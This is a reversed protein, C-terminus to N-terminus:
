QVVWYNFLLNAGSTPPDIVTISFGNTTTQVYYRLSAAQDNSATLLVRPPKAFAKDFKVSILNGTSANDGINLTLQGSNDNGGITASALTASPNDSPATTIGAAAETDVTPPNGDTLVHGGLTIDNRFVTKEVFTVLRYFFANGNFTADGGVVLGDNLNLVTTATYINTTSSTSGNAGTNTTSAQNSALKQQLSALADTFVTLGEIENAKIKDAYLTGHIFVNNNFVADESTNGLFNFFSGAVAPDASDPSIPPTTLQTSTTSTDTTASTDATPSTPFDPADDQWARMYDVTGTIGTASNSGVMMFPSVPNSAAGFATSTTTITGCSVEQIGDSVDNDVFFQVEVATAATTAKRSEIRFYGSQTTSITGSCTVTNDTTGDVVHGIWATGTCTPTTLSTCNSFFYGIDALAMNTTAVSKKNIGFSIRNNSSATQTFKVKATYQPLNQTNLIGNLTTANVNSMYILCSDNASATGTATTVFTGNTNSGNQAYGCSGAGGAASSISSTAFEGSGAACGIPATGGSTVAGLYQDGVRTGTTTATTTPSADSCTPKQANFEDGWYSQKSVFADAIALGGFQNTTASLDRLEFLNYTTSGSLNKITFSNATAGASSKAFAINAINNLAATSSHTDTFNAGTFNLGLQAGGTTLSGMAISLGTSTITGATQTINPTTIDLARFDTTGSAGNQTIANTSAITLGKITNTGSTNTYTASPVSNIVVGNGDARLIDVTSPLITSNFALDENRSSLQNTVRFVQDVNLNSQTLDLGFPNYSATMFDKIITDGSELWVGSAHAIAIVTAVAGYGKGVSVANVNNNGLATGVDDTATTTILDNIADAYRGFQYLGGTSTGVYIVGEEPYPWVTTITNSSSGFFQNSNDATVTTARLTQSGHSNLTRYGIDYVNRIRAASAVEATVYVEDVNGIVSSLATTASTAGISFRTPTRGTNNTLQGTGALIGNVYCSIAGGTTITEAVHYWTNNVAPINTNITTLAPTGTTDTGWCTINANTGDGVTGFGWDPKNAVADDATVWTRLTANTTVVATPQVWGHVTLGATTPQIFTPSSATTEFSASTTASYNGAQGRVGSTAYTPSTGGNSLSASVTKVVSASNLGSGFDTDLPYYARTDGTLDATIYDKTYYKVLGNTPDGRKANIVTLNDATGMYITDSKGDALSTGSSVYLSSPVTSADYTTPGATFTPTAADAVATGYNSTSSQGYIEDPANNNGSSAMANYKVKLYFNTPSGAAGNTWYLSGTSTLFVQKSQFTAATATFFAVSQDTEDILAVNGATLQTTTDAAAGMAVAIYTKGNVMNAKVDNVTTTGTTTLKMGTRSQNLYTSSGNRNAISGTANTGTSFDRADTKDYRTIKDRVFDIVYLGTGSSGNTGVFVQGNLAWVSSPDNNSDAGLATTGQTFDMWLSNDKADFIYVHSATAYVAAIRPFTSQGCRDDTNIVCAAGTHDKTEKYWSSNQARDDNTWRGGDVDGATNYVFSALTSGPGSFNNAHGGINLDSNTLTLYDHNASSIDIISGSTLVGSNANVQPNALTVKVGSGSTLATDSFVFASGSGTGTTVGSTITVASTSSASGINITKNVANTGISITGSAATQLTLTGFAQLTTDGATAGTFAGLTVNTTGAAAQNGINITQTNSTNTGNIGIQVTEAIASTGLNLNAGSTDVAIYNSGAANQVLFATASDNYNKVTVNGNINLDGERYTSAAAATELQVGDIFFTHSTGTDKFYLYSTNITANTTFTCSFRTWTTTLAAASCDIEGNTINDQRGPTINYSGASTRAYFSFTYQTSALFSYSFKAGENANTSTVVKMSNSGFDFQTNDVSITALTGKVAWGDPIQSAAATGTEFDSNAILNVTNINLVNVGSGNQIQLFNTSNQTAKVLQSGNITLSGNIGVNNNFNAQGAVQLSGVITTNGATLTGGTSGQSFDGGNTLDQGSLGVLDLNGGVLVRPTSAYYVTSQYASNNNGGIVYVYGNAIFSPHRARADPLANANTSWAGTSGDTNLRAYYVTSQPTINNYGGIVYVYGDAVVSSHDARM